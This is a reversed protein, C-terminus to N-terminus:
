KYAVMLHPLVYVTDKHNFDKDSVLRPNIGFSIEENKCQISVIYGPPLDSKGIVSFLTESDKSYIKVIEPASLVGGTSLKSLKAEVEYKADNLRELNSKILELQHRLADALNPFLRYVYGSEVVNGDPNLNPNLFEVFVNLSEESLGSSVIVKCERVDGVDYSYRFVYDKDLVLLKILDKAKM